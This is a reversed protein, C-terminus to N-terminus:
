DGACAALLQDMANFGSVTQQELGNIHVPYPSDLIASRVIEPHDRMVTLALRTGYSIGYLNIQDYDLTAALMAIDHASQVSNYAGLDIGDATMAEACAMHYAIIELNLDIGYNDCILLPESLGTGRSDLLILDRDRAFLQDVWTYLSDLAGAGPGGALYLVPDPQPQPASARIIAVALQMSGASPDEHRVPVTLYGCDVDAMGPVMVLCRAPIFGGIEQANGTISMIALLLALLSIRKM